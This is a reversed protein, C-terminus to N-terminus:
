IEIKAVKDALADVAADAAAADAAPTAADAARKADVQEKTPASNHVDSDWDYDVADHAAAHPPTAQEHCNGCVAFACDNCYYDPMGTCLACEAGEELDSDDDSDDDEHATGVGAAAAAEM